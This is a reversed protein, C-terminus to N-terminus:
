SLNDIRIDTGSRLQMVGTTLVTDGIQLGSLAQVRSETRLGATIEVSRAKGGRNVYVMDRGLEPVIAESPVSIADPIERRVIEISAYTGPVVINGNNRFVARARLTRTDLDVSPEVAYVSAEYSRQMGDPDRVTFSIKTGPGIESAYSEPISFDVKLQSVMALTAVRSTTSSFAGESLDRIGIVGDFPAYLETQVINAKVLEIEAMLVNYETVMTEYVEQSVADKELLTHQRYVRDQALQVQAELKKLEAQLPLDNIKALLTGKTVFQGERFYIGIVKGSVEFMLDVEEFPIVSGTALIKDSMPTHKMIEANVNLAQRDTSAAALMATLIRNERTTQWIKRLSPWAVILAVFILVAGVLVLKKTTKKM